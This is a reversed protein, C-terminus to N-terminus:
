CLRSVADDESYGERYLHKFETNQKLLWWLVEKRYVDLIKESPTSRAILLLTYTYKFIMVHGPFGPSVKGWLENYSVPPLYNRM